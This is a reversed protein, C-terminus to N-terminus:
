RRHLLRRFRTSLTSRVTVTHDTKTTRGSFRVQITYTGPAIAAAATRIRARGDSGLLTASLEVPERDDDPVLRVTGPLATCGHVHVGPVGLELVSGGDSPLLDVTADPSAAGAAVTRFREGVDLSLGGSRNTYAIVATGDILAPLVLGDPGPAAHHFRRDLATTSLSVDYPQQGLPRGFIATGIEVAATHRGKIVFRDGAPELALPGPEGVHWDERTDRAKLGFQLLGTDASGAFDLQDQGLAARVAADPERQLRGDATRTLILPAGEYRLQSEITLLLRPGQWSVAVAVASASVGREILALRRATDLDGTRLCRSRARVPPTLGADLREPILEEALARARETEYELRQPRATLMWAGLRDLFRGRYLHLLVEDRRPGPPLLDASSRVLDTLNRWKEEVDVGFTTSTGAERKMWHYCARSGFVAVRAGRAYALLNFRVDEWLLRRREDFRVHQERLFDRRYLKHPTLPLLDALASEPAPARDQDYTDWGWGWGKTRAEKVNVVDAQHRHGFAYAHELGDPFLVDDHDLYLVYEGSAQDTGVNRPRGPWGSNPIQRAITHPREAALKQLRAYTDDPSGDDVFILEFADAPLTLRDVSEVLMGLHDPETRYTPVVLSVCTRM